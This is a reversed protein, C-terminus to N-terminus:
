RILTMKKTVTYGNTELRYFYVGSSLNDGNFSLSYNGATKFENVLSKIIRGTVDFISLSVFGDKPISFHIETSPNFPNPYNGAEANDGPEFTKSGSLDKVMAFLNNRYNYVIVLNEVQSTISTHDGNSIEDQIETTNVCIGSEDTLNFKKLFLKNSQPIVWTLFVTNQYIHIGNKNKESPLNRILSKSTNNCSIDIGNKGGWDIVGNTNIKISYIGNNKNREDNWIIVYSQDNDSKIIPHTQLGPADIKKIWENDLLSNLKLIQIYSGSENTENEALLIVSNEGASIIQHSYFIEKTVVPSKMNDTISVSNKRTSNDESVSIFKGDSGYETYNGNLDLVNAYIEFSYNGNKISNRSDLWAIYMNNNEDCAISPKRQDYQFDCVVVENGGNLLKDGNMDIKQLLINFEGDRFNEWVVAIEGNSTLVAEPSYSYSGPKSSLSVPRHIMKGASNIKQVYVDEHSFFQKRYIIVAGGDNDSFIQPYDSDSTFGSGLNNDLMVGSEIWDALGDLSIKQVYVSGNNRSDLWCIITGDAKHYKVSAVSSFIDRNGPETCVPIKRDSPYSESVFLAIVMISSIIFQLSKM